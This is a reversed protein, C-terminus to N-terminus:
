ALARGSRKRCSAASMLMRTALQVVAACNKWRSRRWAASSVTSGSGSTTSVGFLRSRWGSTGEVGRSSASPRKWFTIRRCRPRPRAGLRGARQQEAAALDVDIQDAGLLAAAAAPRRWRGRRAARGPASARAARRWRAAIRVGLLDDPDLFLGLVHADPVEDPRRQELGGVAAADPADRPRAAGARGLARRRPVREVLLRQDLLGEADLLRGRCGCSIAVDDALDRRRPLRLTSWRNVASRACESSECVHGRVDDHGFDALRNDVRADGLPQALFAVVDGGAVREDLELGVLDVELDARWLGAHQGPDGALVALVDLDALHQAHDLLRRRRGAGARRPQPSASRWAAGLGRRLRRRRGRGRCRSRRCAAAPSASRACPPRPAAVDIEGAHAAAAVGAPHHPAVDLLRGRRGAARRRGCATAARRGACGAAGTASFGRRRGALAGLLAHAHGLAARGDRLRSTSACLVAAISVVKLSTSMDATIASRSRCLCDNLSRVADAQADRREEDLRRNARQARERAEVRFDLAVLHHQLVVEVDADRDARAFAEDHRHQAVRVPMPKASISDCIRAKALFASSPVSDSASRLPPVNVIVLPPTNPDSSLVGIRLGGCTPM